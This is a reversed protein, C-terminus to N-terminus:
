YHTSVCPFEKQTTPHHVGERPILHRLTPTSFRFGMRRPPMTWLLFPHWAWPPTVHELHSHPAMGVGPTSMHKLSPFSQQRGSRVALLCAGFAHGRWAHAHCGVRVQLMGGRRQAASPRVTRDTAEIPGHKPLVSSGSGFFSLSMRYELSTQQSPPLQPLLPSSPLAQLRASRSPSQFPIPSPRALSPVSATATSPHHFTNHDPKFAANAPPPSSQPPLWTPDATRVSNPERGASLCEEECQCKFAHDAYRVRSEQSGATEGSVILRISPTPSASPTTASTPMAM